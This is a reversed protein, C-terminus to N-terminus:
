GEFQVVTHEQEGLNEIGCRVVDGPQLYRPPTAGHGVGAPTGTALVDGPLFTMFQSLYAIADAVGFILDATTGDQYRVGNVECWIKLNGPDGAEDATVLWPGLPGFNDASKGKTSGGGHELQFRRESVDNFAAYGAVYDLATDTTVYRCVSGFVVALEIEHDLKDSNLPRLLPDTPGCLSNVAKNFIQPEKPAEKNVEAAHDRYNLGLCIMKGVGAVPPGLRPSGVVLPLASPEVGKLAALGPPSLQDAGIDPVLFSLDRLRGDSDILGPKEAGIEGYRVFRM